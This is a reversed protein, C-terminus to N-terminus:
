IEPNETPLTFIFRSGKGKESEVRIDGGNMEVLEKCLILGVGTGKEDFTGPTTHHVDIRFLKDMEEKNMGIGNDEVTIMVARELSQASVAVIGFNHSFKIANSILNRFVTDIMNKDAFVTIDHNINNELNIHKHKANGRFLDTNLAAIERLNIDEPKFPMKGRQVRSWDLLTELLNYVGRATSHVDTIFKLIEKKSYADIDSILMDTFGLLAMFPSKLDHSIISFFKDKSDNMEKLLSQSETLQMNLEKLEEVQDEIVKNQHTLEDVYNKIKIEIERRESIDRIICIAHRENKLDFTSFTLELPFSSGDKRVGSYILASGVINGVDHKFFDSFKGRFEQHFEEHELLPDWTLGIAEEEAYGFLETAARNWYVVELAENVMIIADSASNSLMRFKEESDALADQAKRIETVDRSISLCGTIDRSDDYLPSLSIHMIRKSGNKLVAEVDTEIFGKEAIQDFLKGLLEDRQNNSLGSEEFKKNTFGPEIIDFISLSNLTEDEEYGYINTFGSNIFTIIGEKNFSAISYHAAADLIAQLKGHLEVIKLEAEYLETIDIIIGYFVTEDAEKIPRFYARFRISKESNKDSIIRGEIRGDSLTKAAKRFQTKIEPLDDSHINLHSHNGPISGADVGLINKCQPSVYSFRMTDDQTLSGRFIVGPVNAELTKFVTHHYETIKAAIIKEERNRFFFFGGVGVIFLIIGNFLGLDFIFGSLEKQLIESPVHSVIFYGYKKRPSETIFQYGSYLSDLFATDFKLYSFVGEASIVSGQQKTQFANWVASFDVAFKPKKGSLTDEKSVTGALVDDLYHGEGTVLYLNHESEQIYRSINAIIINSRYSLSLIGRFTNASDRLTIAVTIVPRVPVVVSDGDKVLKFDSIFITGADKSNLNKFYPRESANKLKNDDLSKSVSDDLVVKLFENGATDVYSVNDYFHRLRVFELLEKEIDNLYSTDASNLFYSLENQSLLTFLDTFVNRFYMQSQELANEVSFRSKNKYEEELVSRENSYFIISYVSIIILAAIFTLATKVFVRKQKGKQLSSEVAKQM